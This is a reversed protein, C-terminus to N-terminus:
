AKRTILADLKRADARLKSCTVPRRQRQYKHKCKKAYANHIALRHKIWTQKKTPKAGVLIAKCVLARSFPTIDVHGGWALSGDKHQVCGSTAPYVSGERTAIGTRSAVVRFVQRLKALGPSPLYTTERGTDIVEVSVSLSNGAAQTWAKQEIPVIYACHGEADIIFHSSAQSGSRNFLAAVANVDAWGPVNPSVTYHLVFWIPRVGNRSSQNNVFKTVCGPVSATAGGTPISPLTAKVETAKDQNVEIQQPPAGVPTEDRLNGELNPKVANVVAVPATVTANQDGPKGSKDVTFKISKSTGGNDTPEDTQTISVTVGVLGLLLAIFTAVWNAKIQNM